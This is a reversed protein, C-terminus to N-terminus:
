ATVVPDLRRFGIERTVVGSVLLVIALVPPIFFLWFFGVGPLGLGVVLLSAALRPRVRRIVLAVATMAALAAMALGFAIRAGLSEDGFLTSFAGLALLAGWTAVLWSWWGSVISGM